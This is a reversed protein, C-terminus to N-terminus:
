SLEVYVTGDDVVVDFTPVAISDDHVLAGTELEYEWGHWPCKLVHGESYREIVREGPGDWDGVIEREVAGECLPGNQHMCNNLLAYYEGDVNFVGISIGRETEVIRSEGPAFAGAPGVELRDATDASM